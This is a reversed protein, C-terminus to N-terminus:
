ITFNAVYFTSMLEWVGGGGRLMVYMALNNLPDSKRM